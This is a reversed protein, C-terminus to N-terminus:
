GQLETSCVPVLVSELHLHPYPTPPTPVPPHRLGAVGWKQFKFNRQSILVLCARINLFHWMGDGGIAMGGGGGCIPPRIRGFEGIQEASKNPKQIKGIQEALKWVAPVSIVSQSSVSQEGHDAKLSMAYVRSHLGLPTCIPIGGNLTQASHLASEQMTLPPTGPSKYTNHATM